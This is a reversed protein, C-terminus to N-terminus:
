NAERVITLRDIEIGFGDDDDIFVEITHYGATVTGLHIPPSNTFENWGDGLKQDAKRTNVSRFHFNSVSQGDLKINVEDCKGADDNSYRVTLSYPGNADIMAHYKATDEAKLLLTHGRKANTRSMVTGVVNTPKEGEITLAVLVMTPPSPTAAGETLSVRNSPTTVITAASSAVTSDEQATAVQYTAFAAVALVALNLARKM